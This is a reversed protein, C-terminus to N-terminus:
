INSKTRYAEASCRSSCSVGPKCQIHRGSISTGITSCDANAELYYGNMRLFVDTAEFGARKNGDVFPHGSIIGRLLIGARAFLDGINESYLKETRILDLVFSLIGENLMGKEGGTTEVIRKHLRIINEKTLYKYNM